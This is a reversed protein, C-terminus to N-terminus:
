QKNNDTKTNKSTNINLKTKADMFQLEINKNECLQALAKTNIINKSDYVYAKDSPSANDAYAELSDYHTVTCSKISETNNERVIVVGADYAPLFNRYDNSYCNTKCRWIGIIVAVCILIFLSVTVITFVIKIWFCNEIWKRMCDDGLYLCICVLLLVTGAAIACAKLICDNNKDSM